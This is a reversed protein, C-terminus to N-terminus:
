KWDIYRATISNVRDMEWQEYKALLAKVAAPTYKEIGPLVSGGIKESIGALKGEPLPTQGPPTAPKNMDAVFPRELERRVMGKDFKLPTIKDTDYECFMIRADAKDVSSSTYALIKGDPSWRVNRDVGRNTTIQKLNGTSLEAAWIDLHNNGYFFDWFSRM